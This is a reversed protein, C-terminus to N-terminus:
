VEAMIDRALLTVVCEPAEEAWFTDESESSVGLKALENGVSNCERRGFSFVCSSFHLICLSRAEM